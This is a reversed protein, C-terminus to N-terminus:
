KELVMRADLVQGGSGAEYVMLPNIDIEAIQPFDTLLDSLRILTDVLADFDSAKQGRVGQLLKIGKIEEIMSRAEARNIPAVRLVVDGIVEVYLGGIGFVIVPGFNGDQKGGLIIERGRASMKQLVVTFGEHVAPEKLALDQLQYYAQKLDEPDKLNLHVGGVDFKHAVYPIALKLALPYGLREGHDLAQELSRACAQPIVPFGYHGLVGLGEYLYLPRGAEQARKLIAAVAVRDVTREGPEAKLGQVKQRTFRWSLHLAQTAKEPSLFIPMTYHKKLYSIELDEAFICVAVPKQFRLSLEEAKQIMKRSDEKEKEARYGHILLAGDIDERKLTEEMIQVYVPLDFLDGLDLPNSLTIVSARFHKEFEELFSRPFAPLHFGYKSCADAAVVAHGGSRSIVALRDGRLRPLTMIKLYNIVEEFDQVRIAGAQHFAAEVVKNDSLMAATHSFAIRASSPGTNSKHILVPKVSASILEMLRRGNSLGELYLCIVETGSDQILYELLDNEDVNLKNGMSVFKNVGINESALFGLYSLGVGGSQALISIHGLRMERNLHMFPLCLGNEMNINGIGNPGIFRLDYKRAVELIEGELQTREKSFERFGGSEIIVFRIGKRGCQDLIGPVTPAPTLIVALDIEGPVQNIQSYIKQGFLVGGKPGVSYIEGSFQFEMLNNVINRGLNNPTNSVGIVAVSKPYFFTKV